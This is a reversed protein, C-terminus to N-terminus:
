RSLGQGSGKERLNAECDNDRHATICRIGKYLHKNQLETPCPVTQDQENDSVWIGSAPQGPVRPRRVM